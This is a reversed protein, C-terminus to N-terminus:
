INSHEFIHHFGYPRLQATCPLSGRPEDIVQLEAANLRVPAQLSAFHSLNPLIM